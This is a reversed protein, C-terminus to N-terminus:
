SNENENMNLHHRLENLFVHDEETLPAKRLLDPRKELTRKLAKKRRWIRIREHDGSLLVDPVEYGRYTRPRTYHPHELLGMSFSDNIAGDERGLVGPILRVTADVIMMAPLEGGTLVFDGISIEDTVLHAAVREDIGEYHGCILVIRQKNALISAVDQDFRRGQPTLLIVEDVPVRSAAKVDDMARFIPEPKMIMGGGGGFPTDDATKHRDETYDRIDWLRIDLLSRQRARGVISEDLPTFMQPFLTLIDIEM